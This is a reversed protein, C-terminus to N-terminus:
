RFVVVSEDLCSGGVMVGDHAECLKRDANARRGIGITTALALLILLAWGIGKLAEAIESM